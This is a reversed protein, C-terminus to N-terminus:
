ACVAAFQLIEKYNCFHLTKIVLEESLHNVSIESGYDTSM